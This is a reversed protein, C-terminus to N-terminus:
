YGEVQVAKEGKGIIKEFWPNQFHRSSCLSASVKGVAEGLIEAIELLDNDKPIV